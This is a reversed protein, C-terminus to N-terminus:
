APLNLIVGDKYSLLDFYKVYATSPLMYGYYYDYYGDLEYVNVTSSRRFRFVKKKDTLGNQAFLANAEEIPYSKKDIVYDKKVLEDMRNKIAAVTKEDLLGQKDPRCFYGNGITFEVKLIAGNDRGVVDHFAKVLLLIATRAYTKAGIANDLTIFEMKCDRMAVKRLERIKGDVKVLAITGNYRNQYEDAITEYIIGKPYIVEKGELLIQINNEEM